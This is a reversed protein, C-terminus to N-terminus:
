EGDGLTASDLALSARAIDLAKNYRRTLGSVWEAPVPEEYYPMADIDTLAAELAAIRDLIDLLLGSRIMFSSISGERAIEAEVMGRLNNPIASM